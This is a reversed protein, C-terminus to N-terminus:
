RKLVVKNEDNEIIKYDRLKNLAGIGGAAVAISIASTAVAGGLVSIAAPAAVFSAISSTGGTVPIALIATVAVAIAGIAVAGNNIAKVLEKENLVYIAM